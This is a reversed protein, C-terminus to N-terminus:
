SYPKFAITNKKKLCFVAYSIGLHSSNLRTSKRDLKRTADAMAVSPNSASLYEAFMGKQELLESMEVYFGDFNPNMDITKRYQALDSSRRTPFSHLDLHACYACFIFCSLILLM